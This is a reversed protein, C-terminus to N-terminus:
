GTLLVGGQEAQNYINRIVGPSWNANSRFELEVEGISIADTPCLSACRHCGACLESDSFVECLEEDFEHVENACQRVCVECQICRDPDREVVFDSQILWNPM